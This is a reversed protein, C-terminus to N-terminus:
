KGRHSSTRLQSEQKPSIKFVHDESQSEVL